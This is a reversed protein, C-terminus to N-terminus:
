GRQEGSKFGILFKYLIKFCLSLFRLSYLLYVKSSSCSATRLIYSCSIVIFSKLLYISESGFRKSFLVIESLHIFENTSCLLPMYIISLKSTKAIASVPPTNMVETWGRGYRLRSAGFDKAGCSYTIPASFYESSHRSPATRPVSPRISAHSPRIRRRLRLDTTAYEDNSTAFKDM